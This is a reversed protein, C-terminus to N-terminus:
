RGFYADLGNAIGAVIKNQYGDTAMLNDENVNTMYGMEVITVPVQCWNIGSMTDTEWVKERRCGTAAVLGDLVTTSLAKSQEYLSANYPNSATQCITMAGNVSEKESGNAHIRIFADAGADNAVAARESNSINVENTTRVMIVRYGRNELETQLKLSVQLTLEYEPLGTSVGRTGGSVKAKMNSSGPGDPEKESNGRIQHGADIVILKADGNDGNNASEVNQNAQNVEDMSNSDDENVSDNINEESVPESAEKEEEQLKNEPTVEEQSVEQTMEQLMEEQQKEAQPMEKEDSIDQAPEVTEMQIKEVVPEKIQAFDDDGKALSGCGNLLLLCLFCIFWVKSGNKMM